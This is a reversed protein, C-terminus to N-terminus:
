VSTRIGFISARARTALINQKHREASKLRESIITRVRAVREKKTM